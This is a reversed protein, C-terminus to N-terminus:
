KLKASLERGKKVIPQYEHWFDEYAYIAKQQEETVKLGNRDKEVSVRTEVAEVAMQVEETQGIFDNIATELSEKLDSDKKNEATAKEAKSIVQKLGDFSKVAKQQRILVYKVADKSRDTKFDISPLIPFRLQFEATTEQKSQPEAEVSSAVGAALTMGLMAEAAYRKLKGM